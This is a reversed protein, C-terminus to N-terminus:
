RPRNGRPSRPRPAPKKNWPLSGWTYGGVIQELEASPLTELQKKMTPM